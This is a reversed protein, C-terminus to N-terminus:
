TMNLYSGKFRFLGEFCVVGFSFCDIVINASYYCHIFTLSLYETDEITPEEQPQTPLSSTILSQLTKKKKEAKAEVLFVLIPDTDKVEDTLSRM